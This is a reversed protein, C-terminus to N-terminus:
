PEALRREIEEAEAARGTAELCRALGELVEVAEPKARLVDRYAAIAEPYRRLAELCRATLERAALAKEDSGEVRGLAGVVRDCDGREYYLAGLKMYVDRMVHTYERSPNAEFAQRADELARIADEYRGAQLHAAAFTYHSIALQRPKDRHFSPYSANVLVFLAFFLALGRGLAPLRRERLAGAGRALAAAAFVALVPTAPLRFRANVFFTVVGVMFLCVFLYLLALERRRQWELAMGALALPGVIWFAVMPLYGMGSRRWFFYMFKENSREPGEWFYWVKRLWLRLTPGPRKRISEWGQGFYWSSAETSSLQRGTAQQAVAMAEAEGGGWPAGTGPLFATRGDAFPNNGIFFNVGGSSAIPVVARAVVYNRILVPAIVVLAAGLVLASRRIWVRTARADRALHFLVPVAAFFILILPRTLAAVGLSAGAAVLARPTPATLARALLLLSLVSWFMFLTVALLEGEFFVGPWYLAALLGAVLATRPPHYRRALAYVLACTAAGILHQFFLALAVSSGGVKYLLALLYPYLPARFFVDDGRWTGEAIARAWEHHVLSDLIPFDHAPNRTTNLVFYALRVALAVAAVILPYFREATRPLPAAPEHRPPDTM